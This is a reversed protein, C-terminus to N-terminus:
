SLRPYFCVRLDTEVNENNESRYDADTSNFHERFSHNRVAMDHESCSTGVRYTHVHNLINKHIETRTKIRKTDSQASVCEEGPLPASFLVPQWDPPQNCGGMGRKWGGIM